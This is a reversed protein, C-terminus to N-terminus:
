LKFESRKRSDKFRARIVNIEDIIAKFIRNVDKDSYEYNGTNSLNGILRLMSIVKNTRVTALRKFRAQRTEKM